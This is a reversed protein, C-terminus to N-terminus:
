DDKGWNPRLKSLIKGFIAIQVRDYLDAVIKSEYPLKGAWDNGGKRPINDELEYEYAELAKYIVKVEGRTLPLFVPENNREQRSCYEMYEKIRREANHIHQNVVQYSIGLKDAIEKKKLGQEYLLWVERQRQSLANLKGEEISPRESVKAQIGKPRYLEPVDMILNLHRRIRSMIAAIKKRTKEADLGISKGIDQYGIKQVRMKLLKLDDTTLPRTKPGVVLRGREVFLQYLEEDTPMAELLESLKTIGDTPAKPRMGLIRRLAPLDVDIYSPVRNHLNNKISMSRYSVQGPTIKLAEAIQPQKLGDLRLKLVQLQSHTALPQDPNHPNPFLESLVEDSPIENLLESFLIVEGRNKRSILDDM